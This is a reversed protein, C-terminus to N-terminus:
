VRVIFEAAIYHPNFPAPADTVLMAYSRLKSPSHHPRPLFQPLAQATLWTPTERGLDGSYIVLCDACGPVGRDGM